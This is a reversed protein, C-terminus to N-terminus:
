QSAALMNADREIQWAGSSQKRLVSLVHGSRETLDGGGVPIMRVHLVSWCYALNGSIQIEQIDGTSEIRHTQFISRLSSEFAERGRMPARGAGLFVVDQSMLPLVAAVDGAATARHWEAILHRIAKEDSSM